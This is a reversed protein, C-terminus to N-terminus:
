FTHTLSLSLSLNVYFHIHHTICLNYMGLLDYAKSYSVHLTKIGDTTSSMNFIVRTVNTETQNVIDYVSTVDQGDAYVNLGEVHSVLESFVMSVVVHNTSTYTTESSNSEWYYYEDEGSCMNLAENESMYNHACCCLRNQGDNHTCDTCVQRDCKDLEVVYDDYGYTPNECSM